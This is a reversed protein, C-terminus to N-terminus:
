TTCIPKETIFITFIDMYEVMARMDREPKFNERTTPILKAVPKLEAVMLVFTINKGVM